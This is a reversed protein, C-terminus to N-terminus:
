KPGSFQVTTGGNNFNITVALADPRGSLTTSASGFMEAKAHRRRQEANDFSFKNTSVYLKLTNGWHDHGTNRGKRYGESDATYYITDSALTFDTDMCDNQEVRWWGAAAYSGDVENALAVHIAAPGNNCLTVTARAATSALSMVAFAALASTMHNM